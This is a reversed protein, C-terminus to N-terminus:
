NSAQAQLQVFILVFAKLDRRGDLPPGIMFHSLWAQTAVELLPSGDCALGFRMRRARGPHGNNRDAIEDVRSPCCRHDELSGTSIASRRASRTSNAGSLSQRNFARPAASPRFCLDASYCWGDRLRESPRLGSTTWAIMELCAYM